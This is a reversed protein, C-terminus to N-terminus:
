SANGEKGNKTKLAKFIKGFAREAELQGARLAIVLYKLERVAELLEIQGVAGETLAGEAEHLHGNVQAVRQEFTVLGAPSEANGSSGSISREREPVPNALPETMAVQSAAAADAGAEEKLKERM